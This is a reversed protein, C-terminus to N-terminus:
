LQFFSLLFFMLFLLIIVILSLFNILLYKIITKFRKQNYFNRMAKYQYFLIGIFALGNLLNIAASNYKEEIAQLSFNILLGIFTFVYLHITYIVHNVYFIEKRRIYLFKLLLAFLPLSIFLIQPFKHFFSDLIKEKLTRRNDAYKEDVSLSKIILRRKLYGDQKNKPLTKQVSDYQKLSKFKDTTFITFSKKENEIFYKLGALSDKKIENIQAEKLKIINKLEAVEASDKNNELETELKIKIKTLKSIFTTSSYTAKEEKDPKPVIFSFFILFFLASTFIYMRIPNLYSNRKGRLYETSLFGPRTILLKLSTFFKGDFHTLDEFFHTVLHWVSEKPVYNEQGCIHCFRGHVQANCNLCNKETREQLHSM